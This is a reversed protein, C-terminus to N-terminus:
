ITIPIEIVSGTVCRFTVTTPQQTLRAANLPQQGLM